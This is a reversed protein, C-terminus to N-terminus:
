SGNQRQLRVVLYSIVCWDGYRLKTEPVTGREGAVVGGGGEVSNEVVKASRKKSWGVVGRDQVWDQERLAEEGGADGVM